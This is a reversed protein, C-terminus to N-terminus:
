PKLTRFNIEYQNTPLLLTKLTNRGIEFYPVGADVNHNLLRTEGINRANSLNCSFYHIMTVDIDQQNRMTCQWQLTITLLIQHKALPHQFDICYRRHKKRLSKCLVHLPLSM